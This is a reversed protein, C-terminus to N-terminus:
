TAVMKKIWNTNKHVYDIVEKCIKEKGKCYGKVTNLWYMYLLRSTM